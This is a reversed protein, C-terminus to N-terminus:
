KSQVKLEEQAIDDDDRAFCMSANSVDDILADDAYGKKM